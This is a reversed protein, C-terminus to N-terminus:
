QTSLRRYQEAGFFASTFVFAPLLFFGALLSRRLFPSRSLVLAHIRFCECKLFQSRPRAPLRSVQLSQRVDFTRIRLTHALQDLFSVRELSVCHHTHFVSTVSVLLLNAGMLH